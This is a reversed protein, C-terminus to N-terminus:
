PAQPALVEFSYTVDRKPRPTRTGLQIQYRLRYSRDCANIRITSYDWGRGDAPPKLYRPGRSSQGLVLTEVTSAGATSPSRSFRAGVTLLFARGTTNPCPLSAPPRLLRVGGAARATTSGPEPEPDDGAVAAPAGLVAIMLAAALLSRVLM